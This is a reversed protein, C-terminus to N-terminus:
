PKRNLRCAPTFAKKKTATAADRSELSGAYPAPGVSAMPGFNMGANSEPKERNLM